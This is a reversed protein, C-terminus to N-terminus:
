SGTPIAGPGIFTSNSPRIDSRPEQNTGLVITRRRVARNGLWVVGTALFLAVVASLIMFLDEVAEDGNFGFYSSLRALAATMGPTLSVHGFAM